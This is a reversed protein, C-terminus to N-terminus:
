DADADGGHARLRPLPDKATWASYRDAGFHPEHRLPAWDIHTSERGCPSSPTALRTQLRHWRNAPLDPRLLSLGLGFKSISLPRFGHRWLRRDIESPKGPSKTEIVLHDTLACSAGSPLAVVLDRDITVRGALDPLVLTTRRYRTTLCHRLRDVIPEVQPFDALWARETVMLYALHAPDHALRHKVSRGRGDRLKVELHCVSSDLYLRTRVKFRDPRRRAARLYATHAEDDFYDTLYAFDRRGDITLVRMAPDLDTLLAPAAAVPVLYKRDRRTLFAAEDQLEALSISPLVALRDLVACTLAM